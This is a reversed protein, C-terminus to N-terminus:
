ATAKQERVKDVVTVLQRLIGSCVGAFAAMPAQMAGAVQGLLVERTPLKALAEVGAADILKDGLLAAKVETKKNEKIFDCILKAAAAPDQAFAVATPGNLYPDLGTQDLNHCAIKILTNKAVLYEVGAERMKNRLVTDQAVTLGRYDTVIAASSESFLKQLAAVQNEKEIRQPKKDM